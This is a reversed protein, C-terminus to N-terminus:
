AFIFDGATLATANNLKLTITGDFEDGHATIIAYTYSTSYSVDLQGTTTIGMSVLDIQDGNGFGGTNEFNSIYVEGVLNEAFDYTDSQDSGTISAITSAGTFGDGIIITMDNEIVGSEAGLDLTVTGNFGSIDVTDFATLSSGAATIDSIDFTFSSLTGGGTIAITEVYQADISGNEYGSYAGNGFSISVDNAGSTTDVLNFSLATAEDFSWDNGVSAGATITADENFNFTIDGAAEDINLDFQYAISAQAIAQAQVADFDVIIGDGANAIELAGATGYAITANFDVVDIDSAITMMGATQTLTVFSATIDLTEFGQVTGYLDMDITSLTTSSTVGAIFLTDDAGLGGDLTVNTNGPLTYDVVLDDNGAGMDVATLSVGGATNASIDFFDNGVGFDANLAVGHGGVSGDNDLELDLSGLLATSDVTIASAAGASLSVIDPSALSGVLVVDGAGEVTLTTLTDMTLGAVDLDVNAVVNLTTADTIDGQITIGDIAGQGETVLNLTGTTSGASVDVTVTDVTDFRLTMEAATDGAAVEISANQSNYVSVEDIAGTLGSVTVGAGSTDELQIVDVGVFSNTITANAAAEIEVREINQLTFAYQADAALTVDLTDIGDGGNLRDALTLTNGNNTGLNAIFLDNGAVGNWVDQTVTLEYPTGVPLHSIYSQASEISSTSATVYRFANGTVVDIQEQTANGSLYTKAVWLGVDVKNEFLLGDTNGAAAQDVASQVMLTIFEGETYSDSDLLETWYDWGAQDPERNFVNLYVQRVFEESTQFLPYAQQGEESARFADAIEDITLIDNAYLDVWYGFGAPDPARNWVAAYIAAIDEQQQTTPLHAM